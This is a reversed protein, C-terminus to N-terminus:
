YRLPGSPLGAHPFRSGGCRALRACPGPAAKALYLFTADDM